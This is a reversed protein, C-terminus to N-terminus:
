PKRAIGLPLGNPKKNTLKVKEQWYEKKKNFVTHIETFPWANHAWSWELHGYYEVAISFRAKLQSAQHGFNLPTLHIGRHTPWSWHNEQLQELKRGILCWPSRPSRGRFNKWDSTASVGIKLLNPMLLKVCFFFMWLQEVQTWISSSAYRSAFFSRYSFDCCSLMSNAHKASTSFWLSMFNLPGANSHHSCRQFVGVLVKWFTSEIHKEQELVFFREACRCFISVPHGDVVTRLAWHWEVVRNHQDGTSHTSWGAETVTSIIPGATLCPLESSSVGVATNSGLTFFCIQVSFYSSRGFLVQKEGLRENHCYLLFVRSFYGAFYISGSIIIEFYMYFHFSVLANRPCQQLWRGCYAERPTDCIELSHQVIVLWIVCLKWSIIM